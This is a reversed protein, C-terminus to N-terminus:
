FIEVKFYFLLLFLVSSRLHNAHPAGAAMGQNEFIKLHQSFNYIYLESFVLFLFIVSSKIIFFDILVFLSDIKAWFDRKKPIIEQFNILKVVVEPL